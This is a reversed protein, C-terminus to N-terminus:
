GFCFVFVLKESLVWCEMWFFKGLGVRRLRGNVGFMMVVELWLDVGVICDGGGYGGIGWVNGEEFGKEWVGRVVVNFWM